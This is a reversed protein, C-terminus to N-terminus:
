SSQDGTAPQAARLTDLQAQIGILSSRILRQNEELDDLRSRDGAAGVQRMSNCECEVDYEPDDPDDDNFPLLGIRQAIERLEPDKWGLRQLRNELADVFEFSNDSLLLADWLAGTFDERTTTM